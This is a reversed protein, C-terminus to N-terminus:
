QAGPVLGPELGLRRFGAVEEGEDLGKACLVRMGQTLPPSEESPCDVAHHIQERDHPRLRPAHGGSTQCGEPLVHRREQGKPFRKPAVQVILM